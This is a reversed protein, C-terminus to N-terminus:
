SLKREKRYYFYSIALLVLPVVPGFADGDGAQLHAIIAMVLNILFGLYALQRIIPNKILWLAIVGLLKAAALPYVLEAPYGLGEFIKVVEDYNVIYNIAGGALMLSFLATAIRYIIFNRKSM